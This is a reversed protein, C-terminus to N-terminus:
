EVVKAYPRGLMWGKIASVTEAERGFYGHASLPECEDSQAARGGKVTILPYKTGLESAAAYPCLRCRDFAHHVFLLPAQITTFDFGLLGGGSLVTSTLVVGDVAGGLSRGLHAASITGRSTGVLFVKVGPFRRRLDAVVSAVDQAHAKGTRFADDM